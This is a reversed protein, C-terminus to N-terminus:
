SRPVRGDAPRVISDRLAGLLIGAALAATEARLVTPGFRVLRGAAASREADSWGGEPGVLVLPMTTVDPPSGAPDALTAGGAVLDEFRVLPEVAPLWRRRSQMAAEVAVRRLREHNRTAKGEDWRVISRDAAFVVIRDVGCETLKQVVWEPKDGKVLAFGVGIPPSPRDEREVPGEPELRAGAVFSCRRWGGAGDSVTVVEGARLRLVREVHHRDLDSLEPEDLDDVFVHAAVGGV